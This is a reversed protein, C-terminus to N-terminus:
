KRSSHTNKPSALAISSSRKYSKRTTTQIEIPLLLQLRPPIRQMWMHSPRRLQYTLKAAPLPLAGMEEEVFEQLRLVDEDEEDDDHM